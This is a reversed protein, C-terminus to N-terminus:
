DGNTVSGNDNGGAAPAIRSLAEAEEQTIVTDEGTAGNFYEAILTDGTRFLAYIGMIAMVWAIVAGALWVVLTRRPSLPSRKENNSPM